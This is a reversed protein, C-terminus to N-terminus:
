SSVEFIDTDVEARAQVTYRGDVFLAATKRTVIVLGASGSFGSLWKLREACPPVYEGQHEDARPVLYANLGAQATLKRLEKIREASLNRQATTEFTQFM